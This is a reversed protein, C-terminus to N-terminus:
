KLQLGCKKFKQMLDTSGFVGVPFVASSSLFQIDCFSTRTCRTPRLGRSTVINDTLEQSSESNTDRPKTAASIVKTNKECDCFDLNKDETNTVECACDLNNCWCCLNEFCDFSNLSWFHTGANRSATIDLGYQNNWTKLKMASGDWM